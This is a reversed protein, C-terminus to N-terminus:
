GRGACIAHAHGDSVQSKKPPPKDTVHYVVPKARGCRRKIELMAEKRVGAQPARSTTLVHRTRLGCQARVSKQQEWPIFACDEFFPKANFMNLLVQSGMRRRTAFLHRSDAFM